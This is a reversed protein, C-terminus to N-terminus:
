VSQSFQRAPAQQPDRYQDFAMCINRLFPRGLETVRLSKRDWAILGDAALARLKERVDSHENDDLESLDTRLNCMVEEIRQSMLQDQSSLVHGKELALQGKEMCRQYEPISKINQAFATGCDSIASVGLGLTVSAKNPIYGMFNRNLTHAQASTALPDDPRAFHDLGIEVYGASVLLTRAFDYLVRKQHGGPIDADAFGRQGTGGVWPVHAYGYYAIREPQMRLVGQVTKHISGATQKPLGYVLDVSISSFGVHRAHEIVHQITSEDVERHIARQVMPDLDQIGISLRSFGLNALAELQAATTVGPHAELSLSLTDGSVTCADRIGIVLQQLHEVSFFTPTGGGLHLSRIPVPTGLLDAYLRLETLVATIYPAEVAHNKTIRKTCGCFTCLSECFPLHVYLDVGDGAATLAQLREKIHTRWLAGDFKANQWDVVTPYSTYRPSPVDYKDFLHKQMSRINIRGSLAM